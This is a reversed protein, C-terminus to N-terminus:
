GRARCATRRSRPSAPSIQNLMQEASMKPAMPAPQYGGYQQQSYAQQQLYGQQPYGYQQQPQQGFM